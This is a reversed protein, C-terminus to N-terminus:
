KRHIIKAVEHWNNAIHTLQKKYKREQNMRDARLAIDTNDDVHGEILARIFKPELADLEWCEEGYEDIYPQSRSDTAKVPNPPPNLGEIQNMNLAIRDVTADSVFMNLRDQMDRTMDIGSPDHDGLHLVIVEKGEKEIARFREAAARMISQSVFGRCSMYGIDLETCVPEIVGVLADKEIWVEIYTSQNSRTDLAFSRAASHIIDSPKEWHGKSEYERTRDIIAEWDILGALRATNIISGLKDYSKLNNKSNTVPDRWEEPLLDRAILQYYVQRLTLTFDDAMYEEIIVNAMEIIELTKSRFKFKKYQILPM